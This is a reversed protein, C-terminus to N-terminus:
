EGRQVEKRLLKPLYDDLAYDAAIRDVVLSVKLPEGIEKRVPTIYGRLVPCRLTVGRNKGGVLCVDKIESYKELIYYTDEFDQFGQICAPIYKGPIEVKCEDGPKNAWSADEANRWPKEECLWKLIEFEWEAMKRLKRM